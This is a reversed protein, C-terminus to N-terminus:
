SKLQIDGIDLPNTEHELDNISRFVKIFPMLQLKGARYQNPRIEIKSIENLIHSKLDNTNKGIFESLDIEIKNSM